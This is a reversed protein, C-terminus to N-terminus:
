FFRDFTMFVLELNPNIYRDRSALKDTVNFKSQITVDNYM